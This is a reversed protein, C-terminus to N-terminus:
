EEYFSHTTFNYVYSKGAYLRVIYQHSLLAPSGLGGKIFNFNISIDFKPVNGEFKWTSGISLMDNDGYSSGTSANYLGCFWYNAEAPAGEVRMIFGTVPEAATKFTKDSGYGIPLDPYNTENPEAVARYHYTTDPQLGTKDAEFEKVQSSSYMAQNPTKGM